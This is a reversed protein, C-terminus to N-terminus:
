SKQPSKLKPLWNLVIGFNQKKNRKARVFEGIPFIPKIASSTQGGRRRKQMLLFENSIKQLWWNLIFMCKFTWSVNKSDHRTRSIFYNDKHFKKNMIPISTHCVAHSTYISANQNSVTRTMTKPFHRPVGTSKVMQKAAM